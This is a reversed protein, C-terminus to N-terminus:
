SNRETQIAIERINSHADLRVGMAYMGMAM